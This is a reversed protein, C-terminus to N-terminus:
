VRVIQKDAFSTAKVIVRIAIAPVCRYSQSDETVAQRYCFVDMALAAHRRLFITFFALSGPEIKIYQM